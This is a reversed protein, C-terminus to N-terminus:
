RCHQPFVPSLINMPLPSCDAQSVSASPLRWPRTVPAVPVPLVTVSCTQGFAKRARPTGTNAASMLPSRDPMESSPSALSKMQCRALSDAEGELGVLERGHEPVHEALLAMRHAGGDGFHARQQQRPHEIEVVDLLAHEVDGEADGVVIAQRQDVHLIQARQQIGDDRLRCSARRRHRDAPTSGCPRWAKPLTVRAVTPM